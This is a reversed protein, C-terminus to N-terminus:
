NKYGARAENGPWAMWKRWRELVLVSRTAAPMGGGSAFFEGERIIFPYGIVKVWFCVTKYQGAGLSMFWSVVNGSVTCGNDCGVFMTNAPVTDWVYTDMDSSASNTVSICFAVTDGLYAYTSSASKQARIGPRWEFAGIDVTSGYPRAQGDYDVSPAGTNTGLNLCKTSSDSLRLNPNSTNADVVESTSPNYQCGTGYGSGGPYTIACYTVDPWRSSSLNAIDTTNSLFLCNTIKANANGNASGSTRYAENNNFFTCNMLNVNIGCNNGNDYIARRIGTFNRLICNTLDYPHT